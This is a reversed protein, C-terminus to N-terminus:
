EQTVVCLTVVCLTVVCLVAQVCCLFWCHTDGEKTRRALEGKHRQLKKQEDRAVRDTVSVDPVPGQAKSSAFLFQRATAAKCVARWRIGYPGDM